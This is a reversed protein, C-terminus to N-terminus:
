RRRWNELTQKVHESLREDLVSRTSIDLCGQKKLSSRVEQLRFRLEQAPIRRGGKWLVLRQELYDSSAVEVDQGHSVAVSVLREIYVDATQGEATFVVELGRAEERLSGKGSSRYADFVITIRDWVLPTFERLIEVCKVRAAEMDERRLHAFEPWSNIINYGDIVLWSMPMGKIL